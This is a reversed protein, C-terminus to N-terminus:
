YPKCLHIQVLSITIALLKNLLDEFDEFYFYKQFKSYIKYNIFNTGIVLLTSLTFYSQSM